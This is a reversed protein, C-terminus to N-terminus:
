IKTERSLSSTIINVIEQTRMRSTTETGRLYFKHHKKFSVMHPRIPSPPVHVTVVWKGTGLEVKAIHINPIRPDLSSDALQELQQTLISANDVGVLVDDISKNSEPEHTGILITGGNANAFASIDKLFEVKGKDDLKLESKYDLHLGEDVGLSLFERIGAENIQSIKQLSFLM